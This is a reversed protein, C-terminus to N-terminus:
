QNFHRLMWPPLLTNAQNQSPATEEERGNGSAQYSGSCHM